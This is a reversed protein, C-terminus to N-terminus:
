PLPVPIQKQETASSNSDENIGNDDPVVPLENEKSINKKFIKKMLEKMTDFDVSYSIGGGQEFILDEGIFQLDAQRNFFNMRLTGDENVLWQVQLDGAVTTENVGNVPVAVKGNILIRDSIKSTFNVGVQYELQEDLSVQRASVTPLVKFKSDSDAFIDAVLKNVREALTSAVASQGGFDGQFSGTAALWIAQLQRQEKTRLRDQLEEKVSPGVKPFYIEFDLNPQLIEGTLNLLVNADVSSTGTATELLPAPNVDEVSYSATLNLNAETPEGDWTINGGSVVDITKDVLGGYRFDYKGEIILFDGWMKFKGLTNIELLLIGAGRGKLRSNNAQDVVVEVEANENIDLEFNLSLGKIEEKIFTEGELRAKKEEPSIFRIFSDDGISAADSIPIKFTTGEETTAVVDIVLEDFPGKITSEGSIFATGYYLEDEDEPTNLVLFRDTNLSLDLGWNSFNTHIISGSLNAETNFETDTVTIPNLKFSNKLVFVPTNPQFDLDVNLYPITMGTEDLLLRGALEPSKYSGSAKIRGDLRGRINSIVDGGLPSFAELKFDNFDIDLNISPNKESVNINGKATFSKVNENILEADVRYDTLTNDGRALLSLDGMKINNLFIDQVMLNSIPYIAGVKKQLQLDGNIRGKLNLSDVAPLIKGIDVDNFKMKVNLRTSDQKIGAVQISENQHQIILSDLQIDRFNDDFTIKNPKNNDKNLFWDNGQYNLTSRKIGVVSNGDPNITHYLSLNFKDKIKNGFQGNFSSQVFLTDKLTKNILNVNTFNYSGTYLSDVRVFANYLPNNNDLQVNVKGLYNNYLLLEPSKFDLEFKSEDSYVTGKIQTNEGLQLQPVFVDVIKNYIEFEYSLYQNETVEQPIYNTYISAISNQFLYPIDEILFKGRVSGDIIDPSVISIVREENQFSSSITFDDFFFDKRATQYFTESFQITGRVDNVTTGDMQMKIKGAFVSVSDRTFLKLKNLEAFEIIAEFDYHNEEKSADILGSFEMDLNPDNIILDGNFFPYKLVGSVNINQYNYNNFYFSDINGSLETNVTEADFGRGEFTLDASINGLSKTASVTGINFQNFVVSGKYYANKFDDVNGLEADLNAEGVATKVLSNTIITNGQIESNGRVTFNGFTKLEQPLDQGIVNPLLRRLDFYNTRIVHNYGEILYIEDNFLNKFKFDGNFRSNAYSLKADRFSFDNFTGKLNGSLAIDLNTGFEPYFKNLDNSSLISGNKFDAVIQVRNVFDSMGNEYNLIATGELRSNDTVLLFEKLDLHTDTYIFKGSLENVKLGRSELFSLKNIEATIDSDYISLDQAQLQVDNFKLIEPTEENYDRIRIQLDEATVTRALMEFPKSVKTTDGSNFSKGFIDLNDTSENEYTTVYLKAETLNIFGFDLDGDIIKKISLINTNLYKTYILTDEHHDNILVERIDVEGKWNIGVREITIDVGYTENLNETVKKAIITQVAPISLVIVVM